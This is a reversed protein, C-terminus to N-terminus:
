RIRKGTLADRITTTQDEMGLKGNLIYDVERKFTKRVERANRAPKRGAQNASTSVIPGVERCLARCLPHATIRLALGQHNGTLWAPCGAAVPLIWTNPGPWTATVQDRIAADPFYIYPLVQDIDAAILILGKEVPRKKISLIQYVAQPNLPDCGLGYVAETPYAIVGGERIVRAASKLGWVSTRLHSPKKNV